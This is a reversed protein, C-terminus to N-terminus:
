GRVDSRLYEVLRDYEPEMALRDQERAYFLNPQNKKAVIPREWRQGRTSAVRQLAENLDRTAAEFGTHRLAWSRPSFAASRDLVELLSQTLQGEEFTAGTQANLHELNVGRHARPVLVPTDCFLAEYMAKNAGERRSLLLYLRAQSVIEAVRSQPVSNFIECQDAIGFRQLEHKINEATWGSPYGILAATITRGFRSKAEKLAAFLDRHRKFPNWSSVMVIDFRREAGSPRFLQPDGWDGAGIRVPTLGFGHESLFEYDPQSQSQVIIDADSGALIFFSSDKYGWWSPELVIMYNKVLREVEYLAAFSRFSETYKLLIVGKEGTRDNPSKLLILNGQREVGEQPRPLRMRIRDSVELSAFHRRSRQAEPTAAFSQLLPNEALPVLQGNPTLAAQLYDAAFKGVSERDTARWARLLASARRYPNRTSWAAVLQGSGFLLRGASTELAFTRASTGIFSV